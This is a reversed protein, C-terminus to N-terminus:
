KLNEWTFKANDTGSMALPYGDNDLIYTYSNSRDFYGSVDIAGSVLYKPWKGFYGQIILAEPLDDYFMSNSQFVAVAGGYDPNTSYSYQYDCFLEMEGNSNREFDTQRVIVGDKWEFSIDEDLTGNAYFKQWTKIRGGEYTFEQYWGDSEVYKNVLGDKLYFTKNGIKISSSTYVIEDDVDGNWLTQAIKGDNYVFTTEDLSTMRKEIKPKDPEDDDDSCSTFAMAMIVCLAVAVLSQLHLLKHKM